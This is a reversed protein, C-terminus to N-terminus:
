LDLQWYPMSQLGLRGTKMDPIARDRIETKLLGNIQYIERIMRPYWELSELLSGDEDYHSANKVYLPYLVTYQLQNLRKIKNELMELLHTGGIISKLLGKDIAEFNKSNFATRVMIGNYLYYLDTTKLKPQKGADISEVLSVYYELKLSEENLHQYFVEFEYILSDYYKIQIKRERLAEQYDTFLFALYVGLFIIFFESIYKTILSRMRPPSLVQNGRTQNKQDM